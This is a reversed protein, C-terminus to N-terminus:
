EEAPAGTRNSSSTSVHAAAAADSLRGDAVFVRFRRAIPLARSATVPADWALASGIGPYGRVRVFWPDAASPADGPAFVLTFEGEAATASWALWPAVRGHTGDEGTGEATRVHVHECAPLRWFFGGYGAGARGSSGPSGLAIEGDVAPSLSFALELWWVHETEAGWALERRERLLPQGTGDEWVLDEVVSTRSQAVWGAHVIRGHDAREEYGSGAVYTRGGWLNWGGVDPLGVSAGLHWDHDGPRAATVVTGAPTRVPHLFPRPVSTPATGAGDLYRAFPAGGVALELLTADPM